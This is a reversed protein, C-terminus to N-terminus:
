PRKGLTRLTELEEGTIRVTNLGWILAKADVPELTVPDSRDAAEKVKAIAVAFALVVQIEEPTM